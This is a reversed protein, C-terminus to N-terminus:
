SVSGGLQLAENPLIISANLWELRLAFYRWILKLNIQLIILTCEELEQGKVLRLTKSVIRITNKTQGWVFIHLLLLEVVEPRQLVVLDNVSCLRGNLGSLLSRSDIQCVM